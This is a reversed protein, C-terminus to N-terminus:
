RLGDIRYVTLSGDKENATLLHHIGAADVLHAIGEPGVKGAKASRDAAGVAVVVPAAPDALTVLVVGNARELSAAAYAVGDVEFTTVMEPESGKAPSRADPYFGALGVAQDIAVGTDGVRRGTAVDWVSLSRGGGAPMGAETQGAKPETDGEDATVLLRGDPTLAVGDPEPLARLAEVFSARDDDTLDALREMAGLGWAASVQRAELDVVVMANSEQLTVFARSGSRDIAVYEPELFEPSAAALPLLFSEGNAEDAVVAIGGLTGVLVGEDELDGDGNLDAPATIRGDGDVDVDRELSRRLAGGTVGAAGTLDRLEVRAATAATPGGGLEVITISGPPSSFTRTAREFTFEEAEDAVVARRGDASIAVGDPGVGTPLSKLLAGDATARLEVRGPARPDPSEIACVLYEGGPHVAISTLDEGAALGLPLRVVRKPKAPVSLDLVDVYGRGSNSLFARRSPAHVVVIETGGRDGSAYRAIPAIRVAATAEAAALGAVLLAALTRITMM